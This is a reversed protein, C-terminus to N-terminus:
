CSKLTTTGCVDVVVSTRKAGGWSNWRKEEGKVLIANFKGSWQVLEGQEVQTAIARSLADHREEASVRRTSAERGPVEAAPSSTPSLVDNM